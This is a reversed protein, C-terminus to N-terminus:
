QRSQVYLLRVGYGVTPLTLVNDQVTIAEGTEADSATILADGDLKITLTEPKPNWTCVCLLRKGNRQLLISKAQADNSTHVPYSKDWYNFVACDRLGYGFDAVIQLLKAEITRRDEAANKVRVEHVFHTGFRTRYAFDLEEQSKTDNIWALSLPYSGTQRGISETRLMNAPYKAQQPEPGYLWELDMNADGFSLFPLINSNTMHLIQIPKTRQPTLEHHMVWTRKYFERRAWMNASPQIDGNPLVYAATTVTDRQPTPFINDYYLGIGRRVFEAGWYCAFDVYSPALNANGVAVPNTRWVDKPLDQQWQGSWESQYVYTEPHSAIVGWFSEWYVSFWRCNRGVHTSMHLSFNALDVYQKITAEPMTPLLNRKTWQEVFGPWPSGLRSQQMATLISLDGNRPYRDFIHGNSGWYQSGQLYIDDTRSGDRRTITGEFSTNRWDDPMPKTPSAQLGFVIRRPQDITIPKQILNVRLVLKDGQRIIQQCPADPKGDKDLSLEWGADNDAFWAIGREEGGLWLYCKFNGFWAGDPFRTSDWIVGQGAPVEGAPNSRVSTSCVHWLPSIADRLPIDLYLSKLEQKDAGPQLELEVKMCGDYEMSSRMKATVASASAQGEYVALHHHVSTFKGAGELPQDNAFLQIPGALLQEDKATVSKWLGLGTMEHRRLVVDINNGEVQIPTFPPYVNTTVGMASGEFAFHKRAFPRVFPTDMGNLTVVVQYDGDSLDGVKMEMTLGHKDQPWNLASEVITKGDPATIKVHGAVIADAEKGLKHTDIGLRVFGYSPYYAIRVAADPDPGLRVEAWPKEQPKTWGPIGYRLYTQSGDESAVVLQLNHLGIDQFHGPIHWRYPAEGGAPLDIIQENNKGPVSNSLMKATVKVRRAPGPNIIRLQYDPEGNWFQEGLSQIQVTPENETLRIRAYRLWNTFAGEHPFWTVQGWPRKYNRAILVGVDRGIPAHDCGLDTWPISILQTYTLTDLNVFSKLTWHGNWARDPAPSAPDFKVDYVTGLANAIMGVYWQEGQRAQRNALFPDIYVEVGEDFCVATDDNNKIKAWLDKDPPVESVVAIYLADRTSALWTAGHRQDMAKNSWSEMFNVTRVAPSWQAPDFTEMSPAAKLLSLTAGYEMSEPQAALTMAGMLLLMAGM